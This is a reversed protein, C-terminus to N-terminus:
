HTTSTAPPAQGGLAEKVGLGLLGLIWFLMIFYPKADEPIGIPIVAGATGIACLATSLMVLSAQARDSLGNAM